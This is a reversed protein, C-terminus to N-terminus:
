LNQLDNQFSVPKGEPSKNVMTLYIFVQPNERPGQWKSNGGQIAAGDCILAQEESHVSKHNEIQPGYTNSVVTKQPQCQCHSPRKDCKLTLLKPPYDGM